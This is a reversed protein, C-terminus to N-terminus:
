GIGHSAGGEVKSPRCLLRWSWSGGVGEVMGAACSFGRVSEREGVVEPGAWEGAVDM